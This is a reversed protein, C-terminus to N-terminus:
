KRDEAIVTQFCRIQAHAKPAMLIGKERILRRQRAEETEKRMEVRETKYHESEKQCPDLWIHSQVMPVQRLDILICKSAPKTLLNHLTKYGTEIM